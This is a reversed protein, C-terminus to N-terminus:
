GWCESGDLGPDQLVGGIGTEAEDKWGKHTAADACGSLSSASSESGHSSGLVCVVMARSMTGAIPGSPVTLRMCEATGSVGLSETHCVPSRPSGPLATLQRPSMVSFCSAPFQEQAPLSPAGGVGARPWAAKPSLGLFPRLHSGPAGRPAQGLNPSSSRGAPGMMTSCPALMCIAPPVRPWPWPSMQFLSM